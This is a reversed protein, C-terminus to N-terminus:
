RLVFAAVIIKQFKCLIMPVNKLSAKCLGDDIIKFKPLGRVADAAMLKQMARLSPHGLKQHWIDTTGSITVYCTKGSTIMYCNDQSRRGELIKNQLQDIVICKEKNFKVSMGEDCLQSISILNAKLGEVLM